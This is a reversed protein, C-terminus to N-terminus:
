AVVLGRDVLMPATVFKNLDCVGGVCGRKNLAEGEGELAGTGKIEAVTLALALVNARRGGGVNRRGALKGAAEVEIEVVDGPLPAEVEGEIAVPM